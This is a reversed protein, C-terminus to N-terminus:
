FLKRFYPLAYEPQNMENFSKGIYFYAVTQNAFDNRKKLVPLAQNLQNIALKYNKKSYNNVGESHIFYAEMSTNELAKGESLGLNNYKSCLNYKGTKNYCLSLSHLTNLYARDDEVAFYDLCEKFLSLAEDYFGLYQKIQGLAYKTKYLTYHDSTRVLYENAILYNNLALQLQKQDFHVIGKTLYAKGILANDKSQLAAHVLSDSYQVLHKKDSRYMKSRFKEAKQSEKKELESTHTESQDHLGDIQNLHLSTASKNVTAIAFCTVFFLLLNKVM